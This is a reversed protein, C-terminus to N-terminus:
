TFPFAWFPQQKTSLRYATHSSLFPPVCYALGFIATRLVCAWFLATRLVCPPHTDGETRSSFLCIPLGSKPGTCTETWRALALFQDWNCPALTANRPGCNLYSLKHLPTITTLSNDKDTSINSQHILWLRSMCRNINQGGPGARPHPPPPPPCDSQM